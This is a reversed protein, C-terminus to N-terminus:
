LDINHQANGTTLIAINGTHRAPNALRRLKSTPGTTAPHDPGSPCGACGPVGVLDLCSQAARLFQGLLLLVRHCPEGEALIGGGEAHEVGEVVLLRTLPVQL